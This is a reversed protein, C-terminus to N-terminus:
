TEPTVCNTRLRCQRCVLVSLSRVVVLENPVVVPLGMDDATNSTRRVTCSIMLNTTASLLKISPFLKLQLVHELLMTFTNCYCIENHYINNSAYKVDILVTHLFQFPAMKVNIEHM